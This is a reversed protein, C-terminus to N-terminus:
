HKRETSEDKKAWTGMSYACNGCLDLKPLIAQTNMMAMHDQLNRCVPHISIEYCIDLKTNCRDCARM